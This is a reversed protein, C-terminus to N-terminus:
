RGVAPRPASAFPALDSGVEADFRAIETSAEVVEAYVDSPLTLQQGRVRPVVAARYPGSHARRASQSLLEVPIASTWSREEYGIAPWSTPAFAGPSTM